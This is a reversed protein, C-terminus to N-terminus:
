YNVIRLTNRINADILRILRLVFPCSFHTRICCFPNAIIASVPVRGAPNVGHDFRTEADPVQGALATPLM